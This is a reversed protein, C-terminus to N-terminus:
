RNAEGQLRQLFQQWRGAMEEAKALLLEPPQQSGPLASVGNVKYDPIHEQCFWVPDNWPAAQNVLGNRWNAKCGPHACVPSSIQPSESSIWGSKPTVQYELLDLLWRLENIDHRTPQQEPLIEWGAILRQMKEVTEEPSESEEFRSM